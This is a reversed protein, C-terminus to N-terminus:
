GNNEGKQASEAPKVVMEERVKQTPVVDFESLYRAARWLEALIDLRRSVAEPSLDESFGRSAQKAAEADGDNM